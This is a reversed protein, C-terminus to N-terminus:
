KFFAVDTDQRIHIAFNKISQSCKKRMFGDFELPSSKWAKRFMENPRGGVCFM